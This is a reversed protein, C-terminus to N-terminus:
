DVDDDLSYSQHSQDHAPALQPSRPVIECISTTTREYNGSTSPEPRHPARVTAALQSDSLRARGMGSTFRVGPSSRAIAALRETQRVVREQVSHARLRPAAALNEPLRAGGSFGSPLRETQRLQPVVRCIPLVRCVPRERSVERVLNVSREGNENLSIQLNERVRSNELDRWERIRCPFCELIRDCSSCFM